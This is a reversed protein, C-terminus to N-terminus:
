EEGEEAAAAPAMLRSTNSTQWVIHVYQDLWCACAYDFLLLHLSVM